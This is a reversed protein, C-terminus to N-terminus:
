TTEQGPRFTLEWRWGGEGRLGHWIGATPACNGYDYIHKGLDIKDATTHLLISKVCIGHTVLAVSRLPGDDLQTLLEAVRDRVREKTEGPAGEGLSKVYTIPLGLLDVITDATQVTRAFPSAFLYEIGRGALWRAAQQAEARGTATLPPGPEIDYRISSSRDPQAHRILYIQDIM